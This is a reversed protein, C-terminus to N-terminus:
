SDQFKQLFFAAIGIVEICPRDSIDENVYLNIIEAASNWYNEGANRIHVKATEIKGWEDDDVSLRYKAPCIGIYEEASSNWIFKCSDICAKLLLPNMLLVNYDVGVFESLKEIENQFKRGTINVYKRWSIDRWSLPIQASKEIGDSLKYNITIM